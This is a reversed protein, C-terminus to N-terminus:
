SLTSLSSDMLNDQINEEASFMDLTLTLYVHMQCFFFDSMLFDNNGCSSFVKYKATFFHEAMIM